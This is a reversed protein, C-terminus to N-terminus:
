DRRPAPASRQRPLLRRLLPTLGDLDTVVGYGTRTMDIFEDLNSGLNPRVPRWPPPPARFRGDEDRMHSRDSAFVEVFRSALVVRFLPQYRQPAEPPFSHSLYTRADVPFPLRSDLDFIAVEGGVTAALVVHYDWVVTEGLSQWRMACTKSPNSIFVVCRSGLDASDRGSRDAGPLYASCLRFVNEECYFPTYDYGSRDM